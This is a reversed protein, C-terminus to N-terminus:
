TRACSRTRFVKHGIGPISGPDGAHPTLINGNCWWPWDCNTYDGTKEDNDSAATDGEETGAVSYDETASSDKQVEEEKLRDVASM